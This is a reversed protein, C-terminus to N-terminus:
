LRPWLASIMAVSDAGAAIVEEATTRTIGGIAVLPFKGVAARVARLGDLGVVADPKDKTTTGFIPGIAIYDVPLKTAPGAQSVSHTSYGILADDGLLRRAAEPPLDDQGLHVARLNLALAIDVRDNVILQVGRKNAVELAAKAQEYFQLPSAYKDRLQVITAGNDAFVAVQETHSLGSIRTDTIPYLRPLRFSSRM